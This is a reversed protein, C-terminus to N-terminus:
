SNEVDKLSILDEGLSVIVLSFRELKENMRSIWDELSDSLCQYSAIRLLNSVHRNQARSINQIASLGDEGAHQILGAHLLLDLGEKRIQESTAEKIDPQFAIIEERHELWEDISSIIESNSGCLPYMLKKMSEREQPPIPDVQESHEDKKASKELILDLIDKSDDIDDPLDHITFGAKELGDRALERAKNKIETLFSM